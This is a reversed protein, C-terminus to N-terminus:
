PQRDIDRAQYRMDVRDPVVQQQRAQQWRRNIKGMRCSFAHHSSTHWQECLTTVTILEDALGKAQGARNLRSVQSNPQWTSLIQELRQIEDLMQSIVPEAQDAKVGVVQVDLSTGLVNDYHAAYGPQTATAQTAALIGASILLVRMNITLRKNM